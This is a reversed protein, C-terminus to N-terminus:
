PALHGNIWRDVWLACPVGIVVFLVLVTTLMADAKNLKQDILVQPSHSGEGHENIYWRVRCVLSEVLIPYGKPALGAQQPPEIVRAAIGPFKLWYIDGVRISSRSIGTELVCSKM